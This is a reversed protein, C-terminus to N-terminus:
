VVWWVGQDGSLPQKAPHGLCSSFSKFRRKEWCVNHAKRYSDSRLPVSHLTELLSMRRDWQKERVHECLEADFQFLVLCFFADKAPKPKSNHCSSFISILFRMEPVWDFGVQILWSWVLLLEPRIQPEKPIDRISLVLSPLNESSQIEWGSLSVFLRASERSTPWPTWGYYSFIHLSNLHAQLSFGFLFQFPHFFFM